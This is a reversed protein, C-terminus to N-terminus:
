YAAPGSLPVQSYIRIAHINDFEIPSMGRTVLGVLGEGFPLEVKEVAERDLGITARLILQRMNSGVLYISCVDADLRKAVLDM